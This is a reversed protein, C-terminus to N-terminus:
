LSRLRGEGGLAKREGPIGFVGNRQLDLRATRPQRGLATETCKVDM